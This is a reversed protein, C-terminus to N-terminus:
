FTLDSKSYVNVLTFDYGRKYTETTKMDSHRAMYSIKYGDEGQMMLHVIRTHRWSYVTLNTDLGAKTRVKEWQKSFANHACPHSAPLGGTGFIYHSKPFDQLNMEDLILQFEEPYDRFQETKNKSLESRFRIRKLTQDIDEIKLARLEKKSRIMLWYTFQCARLLGTKGAMAKKAIKATERDYWRHKNKITRLKTIKGKIPNKVIYEEQELWYFITMCFELEKNYTTNSKWDRNKRAEKLSTALHLRTVESIPLDLLHNNTFYDMLWNVTNQYTTVTKDDVEGKKSALFLNFADGVRVLKRKEEDSLNDIRKEEDQAELLRLNDAFPTYDRNNELTDKWDSCLKRAHPLREEIPYANIDGYKKFRKSGRKYLHQLEPPVKFYFEIYWKKPDTTRIVPITYKRMTRQVGQTDGTHGKSRSVRNLCQQPPLHPHLSVAGQTELTRSPNLKDSFGTKQSNKMSIEINQTGRADRM